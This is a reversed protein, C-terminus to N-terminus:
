CRVSTIATSSGTYIRTEAHDREALEVSPIEKIIVVFSFCKYLYMIRNLTDLFM